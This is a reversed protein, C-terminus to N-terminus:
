VKMALHAKLKGARCPQLSPDLAEDQLGERGGPPPFASSPGQLDGWGGGACVSVHVRLSCVRPRRSPLSSQSAARPRMCHSHPQAPASPRGREGAMVQRSFSFSTASTPATLPEGSLLQWAPEYTLHVAKSPVVCLLLSLLPPLGPQPPAPCVSLHCTCLSLCSSPSTLTQDSASFKSIPPSAQGADRGQFGWLCLAPHLQPSLSWLVGLGMYGKYPESLAARLQAGSVWTKDTVM